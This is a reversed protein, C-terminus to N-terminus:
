PWGVRDFIKIAEPQFVGFQAVDLTDDRFSGLKTVPGEAAVSEVIPYENNGRAFGAQSSDRLLFAILKEANAANPAHAAVGAGSINVHTGTTEQNPILVGVKEGIAFNEANTEDLFRAVYYSNVVGLRCDGAAVGEIQTTDAGQPKRAFNAVVGQAWAEAFEAGHHAIISALLSQNYVN